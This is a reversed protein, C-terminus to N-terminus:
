KVDQIECESNKRGLSHMEMSTISIKKLNRGYYLKLSQFAHCKVIIFDRAMINHTFCNKVQLVKHIVMLDFYFKIIM